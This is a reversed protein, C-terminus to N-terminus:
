NNFKYINLRHCFLNIQNSDWGVRDVNGTPPFRLIWLFGVVNPSKVYTDHTRPSFHVWSGLPSLRPLHGQKGCRFCKNGQVGNLQVEVENGPPSLMPVLNATGQLSLYKTLLM